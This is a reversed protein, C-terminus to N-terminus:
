RSRHPSYQSGKLHRKGKRPLLNSRHGRVEPLNSRYMLLILHELVLDLLQTLLIRHCLFVSRFIRTQTFEKCILLCCLLKIEKGCAHDPTIRCEPRTRDNHIAARLIPYTFIHGHHRALPKHSAHRLDHRERGLHLQNEVHTRRDPRKDM